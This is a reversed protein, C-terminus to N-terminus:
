DPAFDGMCPIRGPTEALESVRLGLLYFASMLFLIRENRPNKNALEEASEIVFQWQTHSLKRTVRQTQQRQIFRKKQRILNVPNIEIYGEQQLYTFYTSLGSFMAQISKNGLQYQSIDPKKGMARQTKNVRVVYPRWDPNPKRAQEADNIFRTVTKTAIWSSHPSCSFEIYDRLDNRTLKKVPTKRILWAWHLLREIERRYANYTDLSGAYSLLFERSLEYEKKTESISIAKMTEKVCPPTGETLHELTDFLPIPLVLSKSM